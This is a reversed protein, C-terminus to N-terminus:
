HVESFGPLVTVNPRFLHYNEFVVDNLWIFRLGQSYAIGKLPCIYTEGGLDVPGYEVVISAGLLLNTSDPDAKLVIRLIAGTAPDIAIEGEYASFQNDVEYHSTRADVAYRFVAEYGAPDQEWRSWALRGHVADLMVMGLIPGFEGSTTMGRRSLFRAPQVKEEGDQYLVPASNSDAPHLPEGKWLDGQFATTSRTAYLNPLRHITNTVYDVTSAIMKRQAAADPEALAPAESAAPDLFASQDAIALLARKSRPGPLRSLDRSLRATSLRETLRLGDLRKATVGDPEHGPTTLLKRDAISLIQELGVANIPRDPFARQFNLPTQRDGRIWYGNISSGDASLKGSYRLHEPDVSFEFASGTLSLSTAAIHFGSLDTNYFVAKWGGGQAPSIKLGILPGTQTDPTTQLTGQWTGTLDFAPQAMAVTAACVALVLLLARM